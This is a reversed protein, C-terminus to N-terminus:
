RLTQVAEKWAQGGWAAGQVAVAHAQGCHPLDRGPILGLSCLQQGPARHPVQAFTNLSTVSLSRETGLALSDLSM